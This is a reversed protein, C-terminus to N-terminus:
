CPSPPYIIDIGVPVRYKYTGVGMHVTYTAKAAVRVLDYGANAPISPTYPYGPAPAMICGLGLFDYGRLKTTHVDWEGTSAKRMYTAVEMEGRDCQGVVLPAEDNRWAPHVNLKRGQVNRIEAIFQESCSPGNDYLATLSRFEQRTGCATPEASKGDRSGGSYPTGWVTACGIEGLEAEQEALQEFDEPAGGCAVLSMSLTAGLAVLIPSAKM